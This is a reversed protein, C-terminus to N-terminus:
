PSTLYQQLPESEAILDAHFRPGNGFWSPGSTCQVAVAGADFYDMVDDGTLIGGCGILDITSPLIERAKKILGISIPKLVAGSLGAKGDFPSTVPKGNNRVICNPLTNSFVVARVFDDYRAILRLVEEVFGETVVPVNTFDIESWEEQITELEAHTVYPSLKIWLPFDLRLTALSFLVQWLAELDYAFPAKGTNPCGANLEGGTIHPSRAIVKAEYVYDDVSFGAFSVIRPRDTSTLSLDSIAQDIGMNPMGFSNLGIQRRSFEIWDAPWSLTGDNGPRPKPTYSGTVVAGVSVDPRLYRLTSEPTKCVGAGPMIPLSMKIGGVTYTKM